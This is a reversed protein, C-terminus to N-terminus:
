LLVALDRAQWCRSHTSDDGKGAAQRSGSRRVGRQVARSPRRVWGGAWRKGAHEASSPVSDVIVFGVAATDAARGLGRRQRPTGSDSRGRPESQGRGALGRGGVWLRPAQCRGGEAGVGGERGSNPAAVPVRSAPPQTPQRHGIPPQYGGGLVLRRRFITGPATPEAAAAAPPPPPAALYTGDGGTAGKGWRAGPGAPSGPCLPGPVGPDGGPRAGGARLAGAPGACGAAAPTARRSGGQHSLGQPFVRNSDGSPQPLHPAPEGPAPRGAAEEAPAAPTGGQVRGSCGRASNRSHGLSASGM